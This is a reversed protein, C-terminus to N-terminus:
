ADPRLSVWLRALKQEERFTGPPCNQLFSMYARLAKGNDAGRKYEEALLYYAEYNGPFIKAAEEFDTIAKAPDHLSSLEETRRGHMMGCLLHFDYGKGTDNWVENWASRVDGRAYYVRALMSHCDMLEPVDAMLRRIVTEAEDLAERGGKRILGVGLAVSATLNEPLMRLSMRYEQLSLDLDEDEPRMRDINRLYYGVNQTQLATFCRVPDVLIARQPPTFYGASVAYRKKPFDVRVSPEGESPLQAAPLDQQPIRGNWEPVAADFLYHSGDALQAVLDIHATVQGTDDLTVLGPTFRLGGEAPNIATLITHSLLTMEECVAKGHQIMRRPSQVQLSTRDVQRLWEQVTSNKGVVNQWRPREIDGLPVSARLAAQLTELATAQIDARANMPETKSALNLLRKAEVVGRHLGSVNVGKQRSSDAASDDFVTVQGDGLDHGRLTAVLRMSDQRGSFVKVQGNQPSSGATYRLIVTNGAEDNYHWSDFRREASVNEGLAVGPIGRLGEIVESSDSADGLTFRYTRDHIRLLGRMGEFLLVEEMNRGAYSPNLDTLMRGYEERTLDDAVRIVRYDLGRISRDMIRYRPNAQPNASDQLSRNDSPVKHLIMNNLRALHELGSWDGASLLRGRASLLDPMTGADVATADHSAVDVVM